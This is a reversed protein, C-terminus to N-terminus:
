PKGRRKRAMADRAGQEAARRGAEEVTLDGDIIQQALGDALADVDRAQAETMLGQRIAARLRPDLKDTGAM